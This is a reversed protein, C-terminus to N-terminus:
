THVLRQGSAIGTHSGDGQGLDMWCVEAVGHEDARERM